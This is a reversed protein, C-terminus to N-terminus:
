PFFAARLVPKDLIDPSKTTNVSSSTNGRESQSLCRRMAALECGDYAMKPPGIKGLHSSGASSQIKVHTGLPGVNESRPGKLSPGMSGRNIKPGLMTTRVPM